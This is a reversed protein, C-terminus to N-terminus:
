GCCCTFHMIAKNTPLVSQALLYSDACFKFTRKKEKRKLTEINIASSLLAHGDPSTTHTTFIQLLYARKPQYAITVFKNYCRLTLMISSLNTHIIVYKSFSLIFRQVRCNSVWPFKINKLHFLNYVNTLCGYFILILLFTTERGKELCTQHHSQKRFSPHCIKSKLILNSFTFLSQHVLCM